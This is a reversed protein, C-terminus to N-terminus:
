LRGTAWYGVYGIIEHYAATSKDLATLQPILLEHLAPRVRRHDVPVPCVEVGQRRFSAAARPMHMASTVLHVAPAKGSRQALLRAVNGAGEATTKSERELLLRAPPFGLETALSAMLDAERVADGSGGALILLTDATSRALRLGEIVRRLSAVQLRAVDDSRVPSGSMGGALVVIVSGPGPELCARAVPMVAGELAGGVLNAGLPTAVAFYFAALATAVRRAVAPVPTRWSIWALILLAWAILAVPETLLELWALM